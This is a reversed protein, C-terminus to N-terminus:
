VSSCSSRATEASSRPYPPSVGTSADARARPSAPRPRRARPSSSSSRGSSARSPPSSCSSAARDDKPDDWAFRVRRTQPRGHLGRCPFARCHGPAGDRHVKDAALLGLRLLGLGLTGPPFLRGARWSGALRLHHQCRTRGQALPETGEKDKAIRADYYDAGSVEDWAAITGGRPETGDRQHVPARRQDVPEASSRILCLDIIRPPTVAQGDVAAGHSASPARFRPAAPALPLSPSARGPAPSNRGTPLACVRQGAM